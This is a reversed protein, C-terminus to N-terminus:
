SLPWSWVNLRQAENLDNLVNSSIASDGLCGLSIAQCGAEMPMFWWRLFIECQAPDKSRTV